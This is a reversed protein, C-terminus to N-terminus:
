ITDIGIAKNTGQAGRLVVEGQAGSSIFCKKGSSLRM